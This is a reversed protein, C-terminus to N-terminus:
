STVIWNLGQSELIDTKTVYEESVPEELQVSAYPIPERTIKDTVKGYITGKGMNQKIFFIKNEKEIISINGVPYIEEILKKITVTKKNLYIVKNLPAQGYIFNITDHLSIHNLLSDVRIYGEQVQIKKELLRNESFNKKAQFSIVLVFLILFYKKM